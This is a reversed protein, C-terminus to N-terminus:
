GTTIGRKPPQFRWALWPKKGRYFQFASSVRIEVTLNLLSHEPPDTRNNQTKQKEYGRWFSFTLTPTLHLLHWITPLPAPHYAPFWPSCCPSHQDSVLSFLPFHLQLNLFEDQSTKQDFNWNWFPIREMISQNRQGAIHNNWRKSYKFLRVIITFFVTGWFGLNTASGKAQMLKEQWQELVPSCLSLVYGSRM